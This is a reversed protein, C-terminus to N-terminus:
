SRPREKRWARRKEERLMNAVRGAVGPHAEVANASGAFGEGTVDSEPPVISLKLSWMLDHALRVEALATVLDADRVLRCDVMLDSNDIVGNPATTLVLNAFRIYFDMPLLVLADPHQASAAWIGHALENRKAAALAAERVTAKVRRAARADLHAAAAEEIATCRADYGKLARFATVQEADGKVSFVYLADLLKEVNAWQAVISAIRPSLATIGPSDLVPDQLMIISDDSALPTTSIKMGRMYSLPGHIGTMESQTHAARGVAM